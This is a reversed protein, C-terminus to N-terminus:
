ALGGGLVEGRGREGRDEMLPLAFREAADKRQGRKM